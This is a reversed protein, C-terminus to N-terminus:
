QFIKKFIFYLSQFLLRKQSNERCVTWPVVEHQTQLTVLVDNLIWLPKQGQPNKSLQMISVYYMCEYERMETSTVKEM